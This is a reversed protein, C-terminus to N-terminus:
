ANMGGLAFVSNPITRMTLQVMSQQQELSQLRRERRRAVKKAMRNKETKPKFAQKTVGAATMQYTAPAEVIFGHKKMLALVRKVEAVCVGSTKAIDDVSLSGAAMADLVQKPRTM